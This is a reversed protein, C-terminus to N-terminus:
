PVAVPAATPEPTAGGNAPAAGNAPTAADNEVTRPKLMTLQGDRSRKFVVVQPPPPAKETLAKHRAERSGPTEQKAKARELSRAQRAADRASKLEQKLQERESKRRLRETERESREAEREALRQAREAARQERREAALAAREEAKTPGGSSRRGPGRRPRRESHDPVALAIARKVEITIAQRAIQILDDALRDIARRFDRGNAM